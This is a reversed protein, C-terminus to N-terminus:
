GEPYALAMLRAMEQKADADGNLYKTSYTPDARLDAIRSRAAEPTMGFGGTSRGGEFNHETLGRGVRSLLMMMEKTGMANEIASLKEQNLGFERAARRGLEVNEEYANGWEQTLARIDADAKAARQSNMQEIQGSQTQNWWEALANAQRESIGLEHFKSAAAKAFEGTDGEPVPLKYDEASKPRGLADYVRGWGEADNPDKPMPIKDQGVLKELNRYGNLVEVPDKWGKNQAYGKLDADTINDYWNGTSTPANSSVAGDQGANAVGGAPATGAGAGENGAGAPASAPNGVLIASGSAAGESM